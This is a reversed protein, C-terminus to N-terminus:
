LTLEQISLAVSSVRDQFSLWVLSFALLFWFGLLVLGVVDLFLFM